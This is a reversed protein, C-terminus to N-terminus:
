PTGAPVSAISDKGSIITPTLFIVLESKIVEDEKSRFAAGLFPIDGLIPVKNITVLSQDEILGAIIITVGDKVMVTSEATATQIIPIKNGSATTLTRTVSSVEPKIKMTIFGERNITPTVTLSVGVDVFTVEEATTAAQQTQTVVSTVFAERTGVLIKAEQNEVVAIQPTSLVNTKGISQLLEIVATFDDDALTGVTLKGVPGLPGIPPSIPFTGQLRLNSLQQFLVEWNVGMQYKDNLRVQIIKSEINVARTKRDFARIVRQVDNMRPALDTVVLTNTRKDLRVGGMNPTLVREVEPQIDEAKGYQLEFVQTQLKAAQDMNKAATVLPELKEPVDIMVLTRTQSDGIVRGVASKMNNLLAAVANVDAHELQLTRVKRQDAFAAGFLRTYDAETMLHIIGNQVVYALEYSLAIIDIIDQITVDKLTLSIRGGVNKGTVINLNGEKALFKMVALIDMQRLDVSIRVDLGPLEHLREPVVFRSEAPPSSEPVQRPVPVAAVPTMARRSNRPEGVVIQMPGPGAMASSPSIGTDGSSRMPSMPAPVPAIYKPSALRVPTEPSSHPATTLPNDGQSVVPAELVPTASVENVGVQAEAEEAVKVLAAYLPIDMQQLNPTDQESSAWPDKSSGQVEFEESPKVPSRTVSDDVQQLKPVEQTVPGAVDKSSVQTESERPLQAPAAVLLRNAPQLNPTEQLSPKSGEKSNVEAELIDSYRVTSNAFSDDAQLLNSAERVVPDSAETLGARVESEEPFEARAMALSSAVPLLVPADWEDKLIVEAESEEPLTVPATVVLIDAQYLNPSDQLESDLVETSREKAEPDEPLEAPAMAQSSVSEQLNGTEVVAPVSGEESGGQAESVEPVKVSTTTLASGAPQLEPSVQVVSDSVERTGAKVESDEPLKAPAAAMPIDALQLNPTDQLPMESVERPVVLAESIVPLRVPSVALSSHGLQLFPLGQVQADSLDKLRLYAESTEPLRVPAIAISSDAPQLDPTDHRHPESVERSGMQVEPEEALRVPAVHLPSTGSQFGAQEPRAIFDKAIHIGGEAMPGSSLPAPGTGLLFTVEPLTGGPGGPVKYFGAGRVKPSSSRGAPSNVSPPSGSACSTLLFSVIVLSAAGFGAWNRRM